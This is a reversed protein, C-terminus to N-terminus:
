QIHTIMLFVLFFNRLYNLFAETLLFQFSTPANTLGFSMMLLEFLGHHTRFATIYTDAPYVRIEHYRFRLDLKRFVTVGYLENPLEEM